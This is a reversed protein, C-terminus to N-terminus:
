NEGQADKTPALGYCIKKKQILLAVFEKLSPASGLDPMFGNIGLSRSDDFHSLCFIRGSFETGTRTPINATV